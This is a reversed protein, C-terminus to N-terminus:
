DPTKGAMKLMKPSDRYYQRERALEEEKLKKEAEKEGKKGLKKEAKLAKMAEKEPDVAKDKKKSKKSPKETDTMFSYSEQITEKESVEKNSSGSQAMSSMAVFCLFFISLITIKRKM